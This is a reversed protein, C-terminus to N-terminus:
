HFSKIITLVVEIFILLVIVMELFSSHRHKLEDLLIGYLEHIVDLKRNVIDLRTKLDLYTAAMEYFYEYKPRKWFFEPTDLLDTHLNIFNRQAFLKGVYQAIKKRPLSTKGQEALEKPLSRTSEITNLVDKEFASLKVSQSLAHSFSLKMIPNDESLIISDEEELITTTSGLDYHCVDCISEHLVDVAFSKINDLFTKEQHETTNWFVCCGYSFCFVDGGNNFSIHIVDDFFKPEYFSDRLFLGMSDITYSQSFCYSACRM